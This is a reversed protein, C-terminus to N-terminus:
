FADGLARIREEIRSAAPFGGPDTLYVYSDVRMTTLHIQSAGTRRAPRSELLGQAKAAGKAAEARVAGRAGPMHSLIEGLQGPGTDQYFWHIDAM